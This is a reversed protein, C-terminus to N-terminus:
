CRWSGTALGLSKTKGKVVRTATGRFSGQKLNASVNVTNPLVAFSQGPLEWSVAQDTYRGGKAKDVAVAFHRAKPEDPPLTLTGLNVTLVKTGPKFGASKVCSGPRFRYTKGGVRVTARAPGCFVSVDAGRLTAPGTTCASRSVAGASGGTGVALAAVGALLACAACTTRSKRHIVQRM